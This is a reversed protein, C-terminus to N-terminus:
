ECRAFDQGELLLIPEGNASMSLEFAVQELREGGGSLLLTGNAAKWLGRITNDGMDAAGLFGSGTREIRYGGDPMFVARTNILSDTSRDLRAACWPGSTLLGPLPDNQQAYSGIAVIALTAAILRHRIHNTM